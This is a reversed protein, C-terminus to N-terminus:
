HPKTLAVPTVGGMRHLDSLAQHLTTVGVIRLGPQAAGRATVVEVEPVLFVSAGARQVAVTKEAVGGVDGVNGNADITGTAAIARNGTLSGASLQDILSLTMALGASPGGINKTDIAVTAPLEYHVGDELSVGLWSRDPGSVGPCNSSRVAKPTSATTLAIAKPRAWTIVGANTIHAREISLRVRTGPKMDHVRGVLACSSDVATGDVGVIEDAVHVHAQRAPSPAVVGNVIAGTPTAPVKWGLARFAAVEAAQKSDSMELFGQAGLEDTPLGQVLDNASVFQVHSQLHMALWQLASLPQLYVDSLMIKDNHPDTTLGQIKVLPAVPTANGPTIAYQSVNWVRLVAVLAVVLVLALLPRALRRRRSL